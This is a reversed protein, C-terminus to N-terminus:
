RAAVLEVIEYFMYLFFTIKLMYMKNIIKYCILLNSGTNVCRRVTSIFIWQVYLVTELFQLAIHVFHFM